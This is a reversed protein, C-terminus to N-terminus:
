DKDRYPDHPNNLERLKVRNKYAEFDESFRIPRANKTFLQSCSWYTVGCLFGVLWLFGIFGAIIGIIAGGITLLQRCFEFKIYLAILSSGVLGVVGALSLAAIIQNKKM